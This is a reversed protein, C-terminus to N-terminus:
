VDKHSYLNDNYIAHKRNSASMSTYQRVQKCVYKDVFTSAYWGVQM